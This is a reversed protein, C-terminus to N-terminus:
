RYAGAWGQRPSNQISRSSKGQRSPGGALWDDRPFQRLPPTTPSLSALLLRYRPSHWRIGGHAVPLSAYRKNRDTGLLKVWPWGVHLGDRVCSLWAGLPVNRHSDMRTSLDAVPIEVVAAYPTGYVLTGTSTDVTHASNPAPFETLVTGVVGSPAPINFFAHSGSYTWMSGEHAAGLDTLLISLDAEDAVGATDYSSNDWWVCLAVWAADITVTGPAEYEIGLIDPNTYFDPPLYLPTDDIHAMSFDSTQLLDVPGGVATGGPAHVAASADLAPQGAGGNVNFTFAARNITVESALASEIDALQAATPEGASYTGQTAEDNRTTPLGAETTHLMLPDVGSALTGNELVVAGVQEPPTTWPGWGM